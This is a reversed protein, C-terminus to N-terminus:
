LIYKNLLSIIVMYIVSETYTRDCNCSSSSIVHVFDLWKLLFGCSQSTKKHPLSFTWLKKAWTVHMQQASWCFHGLSKPTVNSVFSL